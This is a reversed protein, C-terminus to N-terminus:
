KKTKLVDSISFDLTIDAQESEFVTRYRDLTFSPKAHGLHARVVETPVGRVGLMSTFTHLAVHTALYPCM